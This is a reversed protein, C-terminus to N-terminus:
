LQEYPRVRHIFHKIIYNVVFVAVTSTGLYLALHKEKSSNKAIGYVYLSTLLLPYSFVRIDAFLPVRHLLSESQNMRKHRSLLLHTERLM